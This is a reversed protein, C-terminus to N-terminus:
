RFRIENGVMQPKQPNAASPDADLLRKAVDFSDSCSYVFRSAGRAQLENLKVVDDPSVPLPVKGTAADRFAVYDVSAALVPCVFLLVLRPSIPLYVEIGLHNLGLGYGQTNRFVVPNDSTYFTRESTWARILMRAMKALAATFLPHRGEIIEFTTSASQQPTVQALLWMDSGVPFQKGSNRIAIAIETLENRRQQTRMVQVTVFWEITKWNDLSLSTFNEDARIRGLLQAAAGDLDALAPELSCSKGDDDVYIYAVASPKSPWQKQTKKDFVYLAGDPATAFPALLAAQPVTHM